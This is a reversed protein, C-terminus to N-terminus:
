LIHGRLWDPRLLHTPQISRLGVNDTQVCVAPYTDLSICHSQSIKSKPPRPMPFPALCFFFVLTLIAFRGYFFLHWAGSAALNYLCHPCHQQKARVFRHPRDPLPKHIFARMTLTLRHGDPRTSISHQFHQSPPRAVPWGRRKLPNVQELHSIQLRCLVQQEREACAPALKQRAMRTITNQPVGARIYVKHPLGERKSAGLRRAGNDETLGHCAQSKSYPKKVSPSADHTM